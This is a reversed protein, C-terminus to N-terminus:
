RCHWYANGQSSEIASILVDRGGAQDGTREYTKALLSASEFKVEDIGQLQQSIVWAQYLQQKAMDQNNTKTHLINGLQLHTRACIVQPPNFQFVASLCKVCEPVNGAKLFTDALGLLAVYWTDSSSTAMNNSNSAALVAPQRCM